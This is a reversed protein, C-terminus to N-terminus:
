FRYNIGFSLAHVYYNTDHFAPPGPNAPGVLPGGLMQTDNVRLDVQDGALVVTSFWVFTYGVTFDLRQTLQRSLNFNLEPIFATQNRAYVGINTPQALLGGDFATQNNLVDTVVTNGRIRIEEHMRGISLKGLLSVTWPGRYKEYWFGLSGGQFENRTAFDDVINFRTGVPLQGGLV